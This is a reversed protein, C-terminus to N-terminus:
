YKNNEYQFYYSAALYKCKFKNLNNIYGIDIQHTVILTNTSNGSLFIWDQNNCM